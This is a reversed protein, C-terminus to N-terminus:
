SCSSSGDRASCTGPCKQNSAAQGQQCRVLVNAHETLWGSFERGCYTGDGKRWCDNCVDPTGPPMFICGGDCYRAWWVAGGDCYVLDKDSGPYNILGDRACYYGNVLGRCALNPGDFTADGATAGDSADGSAADPRPPDFPADFCAAGDCPAGRPQDVFDVLWTCAAGM